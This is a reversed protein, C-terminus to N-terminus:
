SETLILFTWLILLIKIFRSVIILVAYKPCLVYIHHTMWFSERYFYLNKAFFNSSTYVKMDWVAGADTESIWNHNPNLMILLLKNDLKSVRITTKTIFDVIFHIYYFSNKNQIDNRQDGWDVFLHKGCGGCGIGTSTKTCFSIVHGIGNHRSHFYKEAVNDEQIVLFPKWALTRIMFSWITM